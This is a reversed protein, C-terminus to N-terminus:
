PKVEERYEETAAERSMQKRREKSEASRREPFCGMILMLVAACGVPAVMSVIIWAAM